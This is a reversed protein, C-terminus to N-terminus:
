GEATAHIDDAYFRDFIELHKEFSESIDAALIAGNLARESATITPRLDRFQAHKGTVKLSIPVPQKEM